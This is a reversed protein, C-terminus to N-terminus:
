PAKRIGDMPPIQLWIEAAKERPVQGTFEIRAGDATKVAVVIHATGDEPLERPMTAKWKM